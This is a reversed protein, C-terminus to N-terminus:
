NENLSGTYGRGAGILGWAGTSGSSGRCGLQLLSLVSSRGRGKVM